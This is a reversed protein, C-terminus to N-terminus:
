LVLAVTTLTNITGIVHVLSRTWDGLNLKPISLLLVVVLPVVISITNILFNSKKGDEIKAVNEM